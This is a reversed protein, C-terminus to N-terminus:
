AQDPTESLCKREGPAHWAMPRCNEQSVQYPKVKELYTLVM